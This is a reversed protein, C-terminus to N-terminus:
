HEPADTSYTHAFRHKERDILSDKCSSTMNERHIVRKRKRLLVELKLM